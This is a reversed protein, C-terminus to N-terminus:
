YLSIMLCFHKFIMIFTFSVFLVPLHTSQVIIEHFCGNTYYRPNKDTWDPKKCSDIRNVNSYDAPGFCGCCKFRMQYENMINLATEADDNMYDKNIKAITENLFHKLNERSENQYAYFM